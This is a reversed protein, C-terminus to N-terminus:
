RMAVASSAGALVGQFLRKVLPGVDVLFFLFVLHQAQWRNLALPRNALALEGCARLTAFDKAQNVLKVEVGDLRNRAYM